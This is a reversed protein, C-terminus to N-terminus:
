FTDIQFLYSNLRTNKGKKNEEKRETNLKGQYCNNNKLYSNNLISRSTNVKLKEKSKTINNINNMDSIFSNNSLAKKNYQIKKQIIKCHKNDFISLNNQSSNETLLNKESNNSQINNNKNEFPNKLITTKNLINHSLTKNNSFSKTIINNNLFYYNKNEEFIIKQKSNKKGSRLYPIIMNENASFLSSSESRQLPYFNNFSKKKDKEINYNNLKSKNLNLEKKKNESNIRNKNKIETYTFDSMQHSFLKSNNNLNENSSNLTSKKSLCDMKNVKNYSNLVTSETIINKKLIKTTLKLFEECQNKLFSIEKDQIMILSLFKNIVIDKIENKITNMNLNYNKQLNFKPNLVIKSM